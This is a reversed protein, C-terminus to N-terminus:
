HDFVFFLEVSSFDIEFLVPKMVQVTKKIFFRLM